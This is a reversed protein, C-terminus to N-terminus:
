IHREATAHDPQLTKSHFNTVRAQQVSAHVCATLIYLEDQYNFQHNEKNSVGEPSIINSPSAQTTGEHTM